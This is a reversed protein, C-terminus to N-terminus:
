FLKLQREPSKRTKIIEDGRLDSCLIESEIVFNNYNELAESHNYNAYCYRCGHICTNYTGIDASEVCRCFKRQNKDKRFHVEKGSIKSILEGDICNGRKIGYPSLDQEAACTLVEIGTDRALPIILGAFDEMESIGPIRYEIGNMNKRCKSYDDLFSIMCRHTYTSLEQSIYKFSEIHERISCGQYFFVPDYRWVVRHPGTKLSLEKFTKIRQGLPPINQEITRGYNNLTFQFYYCYNNIEDIRKFMPRPNKTWFVFADVSEPSLSIRSIQKRNLPNKVLVYGERLRNFFWSSYFAPIDTRRSASIIM